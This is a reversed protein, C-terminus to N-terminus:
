HRLRKATCRLSIRALRPPTAATYSASVIEEPQERAEALRDQMRAVAASIKRRAVMLDAGLRETLERKGLIPRLVEPVSVRAWYRGKRALLHPIKAFPKVVM